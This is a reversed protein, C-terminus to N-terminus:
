PTRTRADETMMTFVRRPQQSKASDQAIKKECNRAIHGPMGCFYCVSSGLRCPNRGHNKGCQNCVLNTLAPQPRNGTDREQKDINDRAPLNSVQQNGYSLTRNMKFNRGQPAIYRNFNKLPLEQRSMKAAAVKKTCDGM